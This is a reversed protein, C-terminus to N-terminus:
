RLVEMLDKCKEYVFITDKLSRRALDETIVEEPSLGAEEFGYMSAERKELLKRSITVMKDIAESFWAPYFGKVRILVDGVDHFKPYEIGKVRLAAKLALEVAEQCQRVCYPYKRENLARQATEIRNEAERIYAEAFKKM